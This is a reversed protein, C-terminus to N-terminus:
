YTYLFSKRYWGTHKALVSFQSAIKFVKSIVLMSM